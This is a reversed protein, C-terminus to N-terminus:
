DGDRSLFVSEMTNWSFDSLLRHLRSEMRGLNIYHRFRTKLKLSSQRPQNPDIEWPHFYFVCAQREVNNIHRIAWRSLWYPFLRFYGGGGCPLNKSGLRITTIPIEVLDGEVPRFAFRPADPIGYLDHKIPYISSSYKYGADRLEDLAWFTNRDISYSPARYGKVEVGAIDELLAKSSRIENVFEARSLNCVRTHSVGHSALEHGQETILRILEPHRQAVWGLVFFTAKVKHEAFIDLIKDTNIAVRRPLTEWQGREIVGEFASVQFYDEVDVSLANVIRGAAVSGDGHQLPLKECEVKTDLTLANNRIAM